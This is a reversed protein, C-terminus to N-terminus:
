TGFFTGSQMWAPGPMNAPTGDSSSGGGSGGPGTSGWPNGLVGALGSLITGGASLLGGTIADGASMKYFAAANQDMNVQANINNLAVTRNRDAAGEVSSGIAAGTPSAPNLGASARVATINALQGQLTRRMDMDTQAAKTRGITAADLANTEEMVDGQATRQAGMISGAAALGTAALALPAAAM